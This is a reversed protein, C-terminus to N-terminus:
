ERVLDKFASGIDPFHLQFLSRSLKENSMRQSTYVIQYREGLALSLAWKPIKRVVSWRTKQDLYARAFVASRVPEGTLNFIGQVDQHIIAFVIFRVLDQIHIWSMFNKGGRFAPAMRLASLPKYQDLVGGDASLVVGLRIIVTRLEKPLDTLAKEWELCVQQLFLDGSLKEDELCWEDKRDGYVHAGSMSIFVDTQITNQNLLSSLFRIPEIRSDLILQKREKTWKQDAISVGCLNIIAKYHSGETLEHKQQSPDWYIFDDRECLARDRSLIKPEYGQEHFATWLARGILGSGGAILVKNSLKDNVM